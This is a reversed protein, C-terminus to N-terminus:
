IMGGGGGFGGGIMRGIQQGEEKSRRERELQEGQWTRGLNGFLGGAGQLGQLVTPPQGFGIGMAAQYLQTRLPAEIDTELRGVQAARSQELDALEQNLQGGRLPIREVIDERARNYQSELDERGTRYLKGFVPSIAQPAEGTRVFDALQGTTETRLPQTQEYLGRAIDSM